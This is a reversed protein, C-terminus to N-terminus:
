RVYLPVIVTPMRFPSTAMPRAHVRPRMPQQRHWADREMRAMSHNMWYLARAQRIEAATGPKNSTPEADRRRLSPSIGDATVVDTSAISPADQEVARLGDPSGYLPLREFVPSDNPTAGRQASASQGACLFAIGVAVATLVNTTKM